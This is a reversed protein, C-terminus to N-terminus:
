PPLFRTIVRDQGYWDLTGESLVGDLSLLLTGATNRLRFTSLQDFLAEPDPAYFRLQAKTETFAPRHLL